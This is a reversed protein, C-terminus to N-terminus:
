SLGDVEPGIDEERIGGPIVKTSDAMIAFAMWADCATCLMTPESWMEVIIKVNHRQRFIQKGRRGSLKPRFNNPAKRYGRIDLLYQQCLQFSVLLPPRCAAGEISEADIVSDSCIQVDVSDAREPTQARRTSSAFIV